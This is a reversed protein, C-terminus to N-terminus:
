RAEHELRLQRVLVASFAAAALLGELRDAALAEAATARELSVRQAGLASDLNAQLGAIHTDIALAIGELVDNMRTLGVDREVRYKAVIQQGLSPAGDM